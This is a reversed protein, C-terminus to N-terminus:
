KAAGRKTVRPAAPKTATSPRKSTAVNLGFRGKDIKRFRAASQKVSIERTMAAYLTAAPTKGGPSTWLKAAAMREILDATSLGTGAEKASLGGLVQAAASLASLPGAARPSTQRAPRASPVQPGPARGAKAATVPERLPVAAALALRAPRRGRTPTTSSTTPAPSPKASVPAKSM